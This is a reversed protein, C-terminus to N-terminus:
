TGDNHDRVMHKIKDIMRKHVVKYDGHKPFDNYFQEYTDKIDDTNWTQLVQPLSTARVMPHPTQLTVM